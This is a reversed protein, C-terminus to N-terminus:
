RVPAVPASAPVALATADGPKRPSATSAPSMVEISMMPRMTTAMDAGMLARSPKAMGMMSPRSMTSPTISSAPMLGKMFAGDM